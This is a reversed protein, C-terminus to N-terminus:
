VPQDASAEVPTTATISSAEIVTAVSETAVAVLVIEEMPLDESQTAIDDMEVIPAPM